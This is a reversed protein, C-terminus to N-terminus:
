TIATSATHLVRALGIPGHPGCLRIRQCFLEFAEEISIPPLDKPRLKNLFLWKSVLVDKPDRYIYVFRCSQHDTTSNPLLIYPIHMSLLRPSPFRDLDFHSRDKEQLHADLFPFCYHPGMTLLPHDAFGYCTRNVTAFILAKLWTTGSKLFSALFIDNPRPKFHDQVWM